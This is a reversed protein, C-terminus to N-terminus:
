RLPRTPRATTRTPASSRRWSRPGIMGGLSGGLIMLGYIAGANRVGFFDGATAPMTGFGGSYCLCVLAGLAFFAVPNHALPLLLACGRSSDAIATGALLIKSPQVGPRLPGGEPQWDEDHDPSDDCGADGGGSSRRTGSCAASSQM